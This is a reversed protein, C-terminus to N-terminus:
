PIMKNVVCSAWGDCADRPKEVFIAAEM